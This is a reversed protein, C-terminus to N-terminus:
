AARLYRAAKDKKSSENLADEAVGQKKNTDLGMHACVIFYWVVASTPIVKAIGELMVTSVIVGIVVALAVLVRKHNSRNDNM